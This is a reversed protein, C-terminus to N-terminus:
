GFRVVNAFAHYKVDMKALKLQSIIGAAKTIVKIHDALSTKGVVLHSAVYFTLRVPLVGINKKRKRKRKVVAQSFHSALTELHRTKWLIAIISKRHESIKERDVVIHVSLRWDGLM